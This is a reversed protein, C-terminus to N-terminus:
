KKSDGKKCIRKIDMIILRISAYVEKIVYFLGERM